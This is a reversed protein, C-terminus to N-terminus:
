KFTPKWLNTLLRVVDDHTLKHENLESMATKIAIISDYTSQRIDIPRKPDSRTLPNAPRGPGRKPEEDSM